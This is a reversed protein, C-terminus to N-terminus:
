LEGIGTAVQIKNALMVVNTVKSEKMVKLLKSLYEEAGPEVVHQLFCSVKEARTPKAAISDGSNLPFLGAEKAMSFFLKDDLPLQRLLEVNYEMIADSASMTRKGGIRTNCM